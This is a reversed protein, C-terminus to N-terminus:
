MGHTKGFRLERKRKGMQRDAVETFAEWPRYDIDL